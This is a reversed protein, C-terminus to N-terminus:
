GGNNTTEDHAAAVADAVAEWGFATVLERIMDALAAPGRCLVGRPQALGYRTAPRGTLPNDTTYRRVTAEFELVVAVGFEECLRRGKVWCHSAVHEWAGGLNADVHTVFTEDRGFHGDRMAVARCRVAAGVYHALAPRTEIAAVNM